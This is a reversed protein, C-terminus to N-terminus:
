KTRWFERPCAFHNRRFKSVVQANSAVFLKALGPRNYSRIILCVQCPSPFTPFVLVVNSAAHLSSHLRHAGIHRGSNAPLVALQDTFCCRQRVGSTGPGDLVLCAPACGLWDVYVFLLFPWWARKKTETDELKLPDRSVGIHYGKTQSCSM